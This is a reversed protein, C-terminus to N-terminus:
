YCDMHLHSYDLNLFQAKLPLEPPKPDIEIQGPVRTELYVKIFQKFLKNNSSPAIAPVTVPAPTPARSM